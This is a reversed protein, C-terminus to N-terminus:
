PINVNNCISKISQKLYSVKKNYCSYEWLYPDIVIPYYGKMTEIAKIRLLVTSCINRKNISYAKNSYKFFLIKSCESPIDMEELSSVNYHSIKMLSGNPQIVVMNEIFEGYRTFLGSKIYEVSGVTEQLIELLPIYVEKKLYMHIKDLSTKSLMVGTYEPYLTKICFNLKSITSMTKNHAIIFHIDEYMSFTKEVLKPCYCGLSLLHFTDSAISHISVDCNSEIHELLLIQINEWNPPKYNAIVLSYMFHRINYVRCPKLINEDKLVKSSLYDLLTTNVHHMRNLSKLIPTNERFHNNINIVANCLADVVEDCYFMMKKHAVKESIFYLINTIDKFTLSQCNSKIKTMMTSLVKNSVTNLEPLNYLAYFIDSINEPRILQKNNHLNGFIYYMTERDKLMNSFQLIYSLNNSEANFEYKVKEKFVHPLGVLISKILETHEQKKLLTYICVIQGVSLDNLSSRILQLLTNIM